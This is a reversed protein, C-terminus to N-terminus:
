DKFLTLTWSGERCVGIWFECSYGGGPSNRYRLHLQLDYRTMKCLTRASLLVLYHSWGSHSFFNFDYIVGHHKKAMCYHTWFPSLSHQNKSYIKTRSFQLKDKFFGQFTRSILIDSTTRVMNNSKMDLSSDHVQNEIATGHVVGQKVTNCVDAGLTWWKAPHYM